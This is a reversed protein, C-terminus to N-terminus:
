AQLAEIESGALAHVASSIFIGIATQFSIKILVHAEIM